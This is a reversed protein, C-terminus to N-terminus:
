RLAKDCLERIADINKFDRNLLHLIDIKELDTDLGQLKLHLGTTVTRFEYDLTFAVKVLSRLYKIKQFELKHLNCLFLIKELEVDSVAERLFNAYLYAILLLQMVPREGVETASKKLRSRIEPLWTYSNQEYFIEHEASQVDLIAMLECTNAFSEELLIQLIQSEAAEKPADNKSNINKRFHNRAVAHCSEHFVYNKKLHPALESWSLNPFQVALNELATVNDVYPINKTKLISELQLFPLVIHETNAATYQFGFLQADKRMNRFIKNQKYLYADGLNRKLGCDFTASHHVSLLRSVKM